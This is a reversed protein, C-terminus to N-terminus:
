YDREIVEVDERHHAERGEGRISRVPRAPRAVSEHHDVTERRVFDRRFLSAFAFVFLGGLALLIAIAAGEPIENRLPTQYYLVAAATLILGAGVVMLTLRAINM